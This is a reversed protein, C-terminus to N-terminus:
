KPQYHCTVQGVWECGTGPDRSVLTGSSPDGLLTLSQVPRRGKPLYGTIHPRGSQVLYDLSQGTTVDCLSVTAVVSDIKGNKGQGTHTQYGLIEEVHVRIPRGRMELLQQWHYPFDLLQDSHCLTVHHFYEVSPPGGGSPTPSLRVLHQRMEPSLPISIYWPEPELAAHTHALRQLDTAVALPSRRQEGALWELYDVRDFGQSVTAPRFCQRFWDVVGCRESPEPLSQNMPHDTRDTVAQHCIQVLRDVAPTTMERPVVGLTKWGYDRALRVYSKYQDPNANNRMLFLYALHPQVLLRELEARCMAGTQRPPYGARAFRDQDLCAAVPPVSDPSQGPVLGPHYTPNRNMEAVALEGVTNKGLGPIGQLVVLIREQSALDQGLPVADWYEPDQHYQQDPDGSEPDSQLYRQWLCGMGAPSTTRNGQTTYSVETPSLGSRLMWGVFGVLQQYWASLLGPPLGLFSNRQQLREKIRVRHSSALRASTRAGLIIQRLMRILVYWNTKHKRLAVTRGQRDLYHIVKGETQTEARLQVLDTQTPQAYYRFPVVRDPLLLQIWELSHQINGTLSLDTAFGPDCRLLGFWKTHPPVDAPLPVLHRGDCWEGCLTYPLATASGSGALCDRLTDPTPSRQYSLTFDRLIPVVLDQDTETLSALDSEAESLRIARHRNKSGGWVWTEGGFQFMTVVAAKGNLKETVLMSQYDPLTETPQEAGEAQDDDDVETTGFFKPFGRLRFTAGTDHRSDTVTLVSYCRPVHRAVEPYLRYTDDDTVGYHRRRTPATGDPRVPVVGLTQIQLRYPGLTQHATRVTVLPQGNPDRPVPIGLIQTIPCVTDSAM